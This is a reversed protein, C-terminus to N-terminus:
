GLADRCNLAHSSKDAIDSCLAAIEAAELSM